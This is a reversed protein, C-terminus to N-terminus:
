SEKRENTDLKKPPYDGVIRDVKDQDEKKRREAEERRLRKTMYGTYVEAAKKAVNEPTPDWLRYVRLMENYPQKISYDFGEPCYDSRFLVRYDAMVGCAEERAGGKSWVVRRETHKYTPRWLNRWTGKIVETDTVIKMTDPYSRMISVYLERNDLRGWSTDQPNYYEPIEGVRWFLGEELAPLGTEPDITIEVDLTNEM